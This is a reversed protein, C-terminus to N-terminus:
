GKPGAELKIQVKGRNGGSIHVAVADGGAIGRTHGMAVLCAM